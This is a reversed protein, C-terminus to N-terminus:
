DLIGPLGKRVVNQPITDEMIKPSAFSFDSPSLGKFQPNADLFSAAQTSSRLIRGTPTTYYVDMKTFDKRMVMRKKFGTPTKPINPKDMVWTRTSDYEIDAPDDCSVNPKKSCLFPDQKFKSRIEEYEEQSPVTRWKFCKDCQVAWMDATRPAKATKPTEKVM